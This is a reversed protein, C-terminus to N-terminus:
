KTKTPKRPRRDPPTVGRRYGGRGLNTQIDQLMEAVEGIRPDLAPMADGFLVYDATVGFKRCIQELVVTTTEGSEVLTRVTDKPVGLVKSLDSEQYGRAEAMQLVRHGLHKPAAEPAIATAAKSEGPEKPPDGFALWDPYVRLARAVEVMNRYSLEADAKGNVIQSLRSRSVSHGALRSVEALSEIKLEKMRLEIREGLTTGKM